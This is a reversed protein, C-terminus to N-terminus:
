ETLSLTIANEHQNSNAAQGSVDENDREIAHTGTDTDTDPLISTAELSSHADTAAVAPTPTPTTPMDKIGKIRSSNNNNSLKPM